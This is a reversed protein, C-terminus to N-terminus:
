TRLHWSIRRVLSFFKIKDSMFIKILEEVLSLNKIFVKILYGKLFM